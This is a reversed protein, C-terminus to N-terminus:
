VAKIQKIKSEGRFLLSINNHIFIQQFLKEINNKYIKDFALMDHNLQICIHIYLKIM